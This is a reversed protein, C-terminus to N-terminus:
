PRKRRSKDLLLEVREKVLREVNDRLKGLEDKTAALEASLLEVRHELAQAELEVLERVLANLQDELASRDDEKAMTWKAVVILAKNEAKWTRLELDYRKPDDQLEALFESIHFLERIKTEYAIRNGRKLEELLPVLEGCHKRVFVLAAAEREETFRPLPEAAPSFSSFFILFSGLAVLFLLRRVM